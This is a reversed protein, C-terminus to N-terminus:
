KTQHSWRGAGCGCMKELLLVTKKEQKKSTSRKIVKM